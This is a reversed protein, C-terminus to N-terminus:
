LDKSMFFHDIGVEKFVNGSKQYDLKEYFPVAPMRAHLEIRKFGEWQAIKESETVLFTGIGKNQVKDSVAVQRMKVVNDSLPKLILIGILINQDSYCGIHISDYEAAIDAPDFEMHLPKRLVEYRLRVAEDFEPTGFEIIECYM